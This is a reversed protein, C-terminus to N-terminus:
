RGGTLRRKLRAFFSSDNKEKLRVGKIMRIIAQVAEEETNYVCLNSKCGREGYFVEWKGDERIILNFSEEYFPSDGVHLAKKFIGTSRLIRKRIPEFDM